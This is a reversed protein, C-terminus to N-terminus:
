AGARTSTGRRKWYTQKTQKDENQKDAIQLEARKQETKEQLADIAKLIGAHLDPDQWTAWNNITNKITAEQHGAGIKDGKWKGWDDDDDTDSDHVQM